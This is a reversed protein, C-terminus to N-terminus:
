KENANEEEVREKIDSVSNTYPLRITRSYQTMQQMLHEIQEEPINNNSLISRLTSQHLTVYPDEKQIEELRKLLM